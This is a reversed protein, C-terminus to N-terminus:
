SFLYYDYIIFVKFQFDLDVDIDERACVSHPDGTISLNDRSWECERERELEVLGVGM